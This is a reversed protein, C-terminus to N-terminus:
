SLLRGTIPDYRRQQKPRKTGSTPENVAFYETATRHHSTWDHIPKLNPTTSQSTDQRQPYRANRLCELWFRNRSTDNVEIGRQLILKTATKRNELDNADPKTHVHIGYQALVQRTTSGTQISRKEVDPDGVHTAAPWAGTVKFLALDDLSYAHQSNAAHGFLPMFYEIVKDTQFYSEILRWKANAPNRQWWQIAMGDLGFDWSVYLGSGPIFPFDGLQAHTIEPYVIGKTSGEWNIDLERAIEDSTRRLKEREYWADDKRPHLRWHLTRVKILGSNRLGKAFSPQESPTTVAIRCPTADGAAGWSSEAWPWFAFEDFFIANYRGSRSFNPNASEGSITNGNEPNVLKMYGRHKKLEFGKPHFQSHELLYELKPFLTDIRWNDVYDEKRSGLLFHSGPRFLWFWLFVLLAIWTAGMDRSKEVFIDEGQEICRVLERITEVQFDYLEFPLHPPKRRPDFTHLYTNVWYVCDNACKQAEGAPNALVLQQNRIQGM